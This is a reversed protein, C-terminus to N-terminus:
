ERDAKAFNAIVRAFEASEELPACHASETFIHLSGLTANEAIWEGLSVPWYPDHASYAALVPVDIAQVTSRHDVLSQNCVLKFAVDLPTQMAVYELLPTIAVNKPLLSATLFDHLDMPWSDKMGDIYRTLEEKSLAFPFGEVNSLRIPGNFLVIRGFREPRLSYASLVTTCGMSWGVVTADQVDAIEMIDALDGGLLDFTYSSDPKESEGTGRQDFALVRHDQSLRMITQDFLRHSQKWGHVLVVDPGHGRITCRIRTKDPLEVFTM